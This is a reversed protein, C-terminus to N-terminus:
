KYGWLEKARELLTNDTENQWKYHTFDPIIYKTLEKPDTTINLLREMVQAKHTLQKLIIKLNEPRIPPCNDANYTVHTKDNAYVLYVPKEKAVHYLAVQSLHDISIKEPAPIPKTAWSRTGDQKIKGKRPWLTKTEIVYKGYLDIFGHTPIGVNPLGHYAEIEEEYKDKEFGPVECLGNWLNQIMAKCVKSFHEKKEQQDQNLFLLKDIKDKVPTFM